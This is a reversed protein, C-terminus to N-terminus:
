GDSQLDRWREHRRQHHGQHGNPGQLRECLGTQTHRRRGGIRYRHRGDIQGSPAGAARPCRSRLVTDIGAPTDILDNFLAACPGDILPLAEINARVTLNLIPHGTRSTGRQVPDVLATRGTGDKATQYGGDRIRLIYPTPGLRFADGPTINEHQIAIANQKPRIRLDIHTRQDCRGQIHVVRVEQTSQSLGDVGAVGAEPTISFNQAHGIQALAKHLHGLASRDGGGIAPPHEQKSFFHHLRPSDFRGTALGCQGGTLLDVQLRGRDLLDVGGFDIGLHRRNPAQQDLDPRTTARHLLQALDDGLTAVRRQHPHRDILAAADTRAGADALVTRDEQQSSPFGHGKRTRVNGLAGACASRQGQTRAAADFDQRIRAFM